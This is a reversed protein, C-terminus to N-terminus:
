AAPSVDIDGEYLSTGVKGDPRLERLWLGMKKAGLEFLCYTNRESGPRRNHSVGTSGNSVILLPDSAAKGNLAVTQYRALRPMHEHGHLVVQIRAAQAADLIETADLSLTVGKSKPAAVQSVPLLHHHVAMMRYTPRNIPLTALAKLTSIGKEGVYGYETWETAAITCSNLVAVVLDAGDFGLRYSYNLPEKWSRGVLEDVFTRFEREHSYTVQDAVALVDASVNADKEYRVIDHNGPVAIVQHRELGLAHRLAEFEDLVSKRTKDNWRGATIFDGTVVVCGIQKLRGLRKLDSVICETLTKRQEGIQLFQGQLLFDYDPGFHLDSLHLLCTKGKAIVHASPGTEKQELNPFVLTGDGFLHAIGEMYEVAVINTFQFWGSVDAEKFRYYEPVRDMEDAPLRDFRLSTVTARFMRATARDVLFAEFPLQALVFSDAAIDEFAKKWWGWWVYGHESIFNKHSEITDVGEVVDRFRLAIIPTAM